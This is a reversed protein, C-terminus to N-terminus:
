MDSSSMSMVGVAIAFQKGEACVVVGDGKQLGPLDFGHEDKELGDQPMQGGPNTLGPCMIHAGGLIFPIAGKDVTVTTFEVGSGPYQYAHVFRLTPLIPGDRQQFLIPVNGPTRTVDEDSDKETLTGQRCYLMLHPGVKYQVLPPKKPLLEDVTEEVLAPHAELIKTKISRQVSAKVQTSTSIDNSPDFRKFM